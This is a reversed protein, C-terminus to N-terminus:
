AAVIWLTLARFICSDNDRDHRPASTQTTGKAVSISVAIAASGVARIVM